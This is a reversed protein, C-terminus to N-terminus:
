GEKLNTARARICDGDSQFLICGLIAISSKPDTTKSVPGILELLDDRNIRM